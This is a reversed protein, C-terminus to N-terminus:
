NDLEFWSDTLEKLKKLKADIRAEREKDNDPLERRHLLRLLLSVTTGIEYTGREFNGVQTRSYGIIEALDAQTYGLDKRIQKFEIPTLVNM